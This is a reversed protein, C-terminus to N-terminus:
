SLQRGSTYAGAAEMLENTKDFFFKMTALDDPHDMYTCRLAPRGWKDKADPRSDGHEDRASRHQTDMLRRPIRLNKNWVERTILEWKSGGFMGSM